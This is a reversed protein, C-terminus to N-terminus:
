IGDFNRGTYPDRDGCFYRAGLRNDVAILIHGDKKINKKLDSLFSGPENIREIMDIVIIYDYLKNFNKKVTEKKLIDVLCGQEILLESLVDINKNAVLMVQSGKKLGYWCIIGKSLEYIVKKSDM